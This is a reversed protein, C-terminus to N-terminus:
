AGPNCATGGEPFGLVDQLFGEIRLGCEPVVISDLATGNRYLVLTPVVEIEEKRALQPEKDIDVLGVLLSDRHQASLRDLAPTIHRCYRCRPACFAVLVPLSSEDTYTDFLSANMKIM